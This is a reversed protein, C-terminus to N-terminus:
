FEEIVIKHEEESVLLKNFITMTKTHNYNRLCKQSSLIKLEMMTKNKAIKTNSIM